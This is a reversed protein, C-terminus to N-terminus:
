RAGALGPLPEAGGEQLGIGELGSGGDPLRM